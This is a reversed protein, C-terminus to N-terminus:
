SKLGDFNSKVLAEHLLIIGDGNQFDSRSINETLIVSRIGFNGIVEIKM